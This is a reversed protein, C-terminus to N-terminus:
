SRVRWLCLGAPIDKRCPKKVDSGATSRLAAFVAV